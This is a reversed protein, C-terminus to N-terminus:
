SNTPLILERIDLDLAEAIRKCTILTINQHGNEIASLYTKDMDLKSCVDFRSLGKDKRMDAIRAGIGSLFEQDTM